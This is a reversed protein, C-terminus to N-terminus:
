VVDYGQEEIAAKIQELTLKSEDYSVEVRGNPLDVRGSAGISRLASEIANVCHQCSMGQVNLTNTTMISEKREKAEM